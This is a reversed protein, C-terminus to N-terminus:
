LDADPRGSGTDSIRMLPRHILICACATSSVASLQPLKRRQPKRSRFTKRTIRRQPERAAARPSAGCVFSRWNKARAFASNVVNRFRKNSAHKTLQNLRM